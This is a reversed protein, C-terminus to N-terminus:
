QLRGEVTLSEHPLAIKKRSWSNKRRAMFHHSLDNITLDYRRKGEGRETHPMIGFDRV